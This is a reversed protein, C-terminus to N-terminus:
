LARWGTCSSGLEKIYVCTGPTGDAWQYISGTRASVVGEPDGRGM